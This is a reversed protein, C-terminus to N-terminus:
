EYKFGSSKIALLCKGLDITTGNDVKKLVIVKNGTSSLQFIGNQSIPVFATIDVGDMNTIIEHIVSDTDKDIFQITTYNTEHKSLSNESILSCDIIRSCYPFYAIPIEINGNLDINVDIKGNNSM